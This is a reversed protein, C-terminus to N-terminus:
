GEGTEAQNRGETIVEKLSPSSGSTYTLCVREERSPKTMMEDSCCFILSLCGGAPRKLTLWPM